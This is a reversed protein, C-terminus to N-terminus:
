WRNYLNVLNNNEAKKQKKQWTSNFQCFIADRNMEKFNSFINQKKKNLSLIMCSDNPRNPM